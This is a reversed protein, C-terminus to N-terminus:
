PTGVPVDLAGALRDITELGVRTARGTIINRAAKV